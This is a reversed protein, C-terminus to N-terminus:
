KPGMILVKIPVDADSFPVTYCGINSVLVGILV